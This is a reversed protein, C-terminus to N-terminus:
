GDSGEREARMGEIFARAQGAPLPRSLLYGQVESCGHQVVAAFQAETEIGEATTDIGINVGLQVIANIIAASNPSADLCEVFRRDIKLKDFVFNQLYSMSSYGTGFDDISVRVGLARIAKMIGVNREGADLLGSETIELELRQAPLGSDRLAGEITGILDPHAFQAPSLNVAVRIPAGWGAAERCAERLVWTGIEDILGTEEAIPIFAAPSVIGMEPHNWRVLAEFCSLTKGKTEILPQYYVEMQGEQVARRLGLEIASRQHQEELLRPEFVVARGRGEAKARYMALDSAKMLVDAERGCDSAHAVGCSAGIAFQKGDIEFPRSLAEVIREGRARSAGPRGDELTLVAFEDGGLRAIALGDGAAETLRAAVERLLEDGIQHGHIDNIAKFRDLDVFLLTPERAVTAADALAQDLRDRFAVRNLLGTLADHYALYQLREESQRRGDAESALRESTRRLSEGSEEVARQLSRAEEEVGRRSARELDAARKRDLQSRIRALAITFDVPKTVYDNAGLELSQAVDESQSKASVMIIPLETAGRTERVSRVVETGDLDPMMIDLLVIDIEERGLIELAEVGGGAETVEFGRRTLRRTLIERNDPVDDVVLVRPPAEGAQGAQGAPAGVPRSPSLDAKSATFGM